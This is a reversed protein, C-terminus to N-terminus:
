WWRGGEGEEERRGGGKGVERRRRRRRGVKGVMGSGGVRGREREEELVVCSLWPVTRLIWYVM